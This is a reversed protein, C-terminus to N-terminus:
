AFSGITSLIQFYNINVISFDIIKVYFAGEDVLLSEYYNKEDTHCLGLRLNNTIPLQNLMLLPLTDRKKM